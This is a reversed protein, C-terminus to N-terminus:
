SMSEFEAWTVDRLLVQHGPLIYIRAIGLLMM